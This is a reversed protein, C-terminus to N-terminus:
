RPLSLVGFRDRAVLGDGILGAVIREARAPDDPWGTATAVQDRSVDGRRLADVLRGRGQRDSGGFLSQPTSVGASGTAPDPGRRGACAWRCRRRIPCEHCRPERAVCVSAGLDLLAQGFQWGGHAPVMSDVLDQAEPARISRGAVARSLV